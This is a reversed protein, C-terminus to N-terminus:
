KRRRAKMPKESSFFGFTFGKFTVPRITRRNIARKTSAARKETLSINRLGTM